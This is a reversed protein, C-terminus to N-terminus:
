KLYVWSLRWSISRTMAPISPVVLIDDINRSLTWETSVLYRISIDSFLSVFLYFSAEFTTEPHYVELEVSRDAGILHTRHTTPKFTSTASTIPIFLFAFLAPPLLKAFPVM